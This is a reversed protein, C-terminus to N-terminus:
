SVLLSLIPSLALSSNGFGVAVAVQHTRGTAPFARVLLADHPVDNPPTDHHTAHLLELRTAMSKVKSGGPLVRGVDEEGYVQSSTRTASHPPAPNVLV